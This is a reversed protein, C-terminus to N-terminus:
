AGDAKLIFERLLTEVADFRRSVYTELEAIRKEVSMEARDFRDSVIVDQESNHKALTDLRENVTTDLALLKAEISTFETAITPELYQFRVLPHYDKHKTHPGYDFRHRRDCETCIVIDIESSHVM